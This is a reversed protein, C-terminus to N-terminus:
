PFPRKKWNFHKTISVGHVLIRYFPPRPNWPNGTENEPIRRIGSGTSIGGARLLAAGSMRAGEWGILTSPVWGSGFSALSERCGWFVCVCVCVLRRQYHPICSRSVPNEFETVVGRWLECVWVGVCGCVCVCVCPASFPNELHELRGYSLVLIRRRNM